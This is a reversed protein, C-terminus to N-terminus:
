PRRRVRESARARRACLTVEGLLDGRRLARGAPRARAPGDTGPPRVASPSARAHRAMARVHRDDLARLRARRQRAPVLHGGSSTTSAAESASPCRSGTSGNAGGGLMSGAARGAGGRRRVPPPASLFLRLSGPSRPRSISASGFPAGPISRSSTLGSATKARRSARSRVLARPRPTARARERRWRFPLYERWRSAPRPVRRVDRDVRRQPRRRHAAARRSRTSAPRGAGCPARAGSATRPRSRREVVRPRHVGLPHDLLRFPTTNRSSSSAVPRPSLTASTANRPPRGSAVTASGNVDESAAAVRRSRSSGARPGSAARRRAEGRASGAGGPARWAGSHRAGRRRRSRRRPSPGAGLGPESGDRVGHGLSLGESTGTDPEDDRVGGVARPAARGSEGARGAPVRQLPRERARAGERAPSVSTLRGTSFTHRRTVPVTGRVPRSLRPLLPDGRGCSRTPPSSRSAPPAVRRTRPRSGRRARRRRARRRIISAARARKAGRASSRRLRRRAARGRRASREDQRRERVLEDRM